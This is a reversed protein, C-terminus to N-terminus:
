LYTHTDTHTGIHSYRHEQTHTHTNKKEVIHTGTILSLDTVSPALAKVWPAM